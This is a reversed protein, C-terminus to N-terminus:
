STHEPREKLMAITEFCLERIITMLLSSLLRDHFLNVQEGAERRDILEQMRQDHAKFLLSLADTDAIDATQPPQLEPKNLGGDHPQQEHQWHPGLFEKHM